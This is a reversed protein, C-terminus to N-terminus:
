NVESSLKNIFFIIREPFKLTMQKHEINKSKLLDIFKVEAGKENRIWVEFWDLADSPFLAIDDTWLSELTAVKFDEINDFLKQNKEKEGYDSIKNLFSKIKEFPIYVQATIEGNASKKVNLLKIDKRTSDLSNLALDYGHAGHVELYIGNNDCIGHVKRAEAANNWITKLKESLQQAHSARVRKAKSFNGRGTGSYPIADVIHPLKLHSYNM